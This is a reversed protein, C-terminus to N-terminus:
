ENSMAWIKAFEGDKKLLEDKSGAEFIRNKKIMIIKDANTITSLRHAIIISTVNKTAVTIAKQVIAESRTDISATAEDLILLRPRRLLIRAIALLQRQGVSLDNGQSSIKTDIGKPLLQIFEWAAIERLVLECESRTVSENGYRLNNYITDELLFTDQLLYGIQGRLSKLDWEKINIGDVLIQGSKVDYLRTILNVFTTKGSGTPGVIAVQERPSIHFSVDKLVIQEEYAFEVNCFSLEGNMEGKYSGNRKYVNAEVGNDSHLIERIRGISALGAQLSGSITGLNSIPVFFQALYVTFSLLIGTSIDGSIIMMFGRVIVSYGILKVIMNSLPSLLASIFGVKVASRFHKDNLERFRNKVYKERCFVKFLVFGSLVEQVNSSLNANLKLMHSISKKLIRGQVIMLFVVIFVPITSLLTLKPTLIFMATGIFLITFVSSFFRQATETFLQGVNELDTSIRSILDGTKYKKFFSIPLYQLKRFLESRISYLVRQGLWGLLRIRILTAVASVLIALFAILVTGRLSSISGSPIDEDIAKTILFPIVTQSFSAVAFSLLIAVIALKEKKLYKRLFEINGNIKKKIEM